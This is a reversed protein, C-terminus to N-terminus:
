RSRLSNCFKLLYGIREPMGLYCLTSRLVVTIVLNTYQASCGYISYFVKYIWYALLIYLPPPFNNCLFTTLTRLLRLDSEGLPHTVAAGMQCDTPRRVSCLQVASVVQQDRRDNRNRRGICQALNHREDRGRM